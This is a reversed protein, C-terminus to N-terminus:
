YLRSSEWDTWRQWRDGLVSTIRTLEFNWDKQAWWPGNLRQMMACYHGLLVLARPRREFLLEMFSDSSLMFWLFAAHLHFDPYLSAALSKQLFRIAHQYTASVAADRVEHIEPIGNIPLPLTTLSQTFATLPLGADEDHPGTVWPILAAVVTYQLSAPPNQFTPATRRIIRLWDSSVPVSPSTAFGYIGILLQATFVTGDDAGRLHSDPISSVAQNYHSVAACSYQVALPHTPNLTFLHLAAVALIAHLLFSNDPLIAVRPLTLKWVDLAGRDECLTYCTSTTYQHILEIGQLDLETSSM